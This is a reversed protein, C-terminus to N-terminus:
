EYVKVGKVFWNMQTMLAEDSISEDKGCRLKGDSDYIEGSFVDAGTMIEDAAKEIESAAEGSVLPSLETLGVANREM